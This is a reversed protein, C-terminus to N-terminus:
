NGDIIHKGFCTVCLFLGKTCSCYTRIQKQCNSYNRCRQQQYQAKVRKFKKTRACYRGQFPQLTILEHQRKRLSRSAEEEVEANHELTNNIMEWALKMRFEIQPLREGGFYARAHNANVETVAIFWAFNRDPWYKTAWTKEISIPSHRRNNHDDIQHRYKFHNSIPEIYSFTKTITQGNKKYVRKTKHDSIEDLTGFSSMIKM